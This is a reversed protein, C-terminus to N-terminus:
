YFFFVEFIRKIREIFYYIIEFFKSKQEAEDESTIELNRTHPINFDYPRSHFPELEGIANVPEPLNKFRHLKSSTSLSHLKSSSSPQFNRPFLLIPALLFEPETYSNKWMKEIENFLTDIDPRQLPDADLCKKMLEKYESPIGSINRPRLGNVIGMALYFDHKCNNFPTQESAIEWMLMGFSYIDSKFTSEKRILVEPAIYPLNGYVSNLSKDAPGCFGFDSIYWYNKSKLYLINGSHLDRHIANNSHISHLADVIDYSIKIKEKWTLPHHNNLYKKLNTDMLQMVLMYVGNKPEQTLGYCKVIETSKNGITLHVKAKHSGTRKLQKNVQDWEIYQGDIWDATYIESCGGRTLYEINQLKEYPIWELIKNPRFSEEQCRQLLSDIDNNNSTWNSFNNKLFIRICHECYLTALCEKQCEKCLRKTGTNYLVKFYDYDKTLIKIAEIKENENLTEDNLVTEKKFEYRSDINKYKEFDTLSDAKDLAAYVLNKRIIGAM